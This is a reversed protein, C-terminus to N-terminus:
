LTGSQSWTDLSRDAWQDVRDWAAAVFPAHQAPEPAVRDAEAWLQSEVPALAARVEHLKRKGQEVDGRLTRFRQWTAPHGLAAPVTSPPFVPVFVSV